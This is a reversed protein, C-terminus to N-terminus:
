QQIRVDIAYFSGNHHSLTFKLDGLSDMLNLDVIEKAGTRCIKMHLFMGLYCEEPKEKPSETASSM